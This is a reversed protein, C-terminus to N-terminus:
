ESKFHVTKKPYSWVKVELKKIDLKKGIKIDVKEHPVLTLFNNSPLIETPLEVLFALGDSSLSLITNKDNYKIILDTDMLNMNIPDKLLITNETINDIKLWLVDTLEKVSYPIATTSNPKVTIPIKENHILRKPSSFEKITLNKNMLFRSDNILIIKTDDQNYTVLIENYAQKVFWYSMKPINYYDVLSWCITPWPENYQWILTGATSFKRSRWFEIAYKMGFAQVAQTFLIWEDISSPKGFKQLNTQIKDSVVNHFEWVDNMEKQTEISFIKEITSKNPLSQIGFETCFKTLHNKYHEYPPPQLGPQNVGHWVEWNHTNGEEVSCPDFEWNKESSPSWPSSRWYPRSPDLWLCTKEKLEHLKVGLQIDERYGSTYNQFDIWENENNGCWLVISPHNRLKKVIFAIEKEVNDLYRDTEPYISCAFQFDHWIMIGYKDCLNYFEEDEVVGGGWIRIMNFHADKALSLLQEYKEKKSFNTLADTPVWDAGKCFIKEGNIEFVFCDSDNDKLLLNVSRIGFTQTRRHTSNKEKIILNYLAQEGKENPWWFNPQHVIIEHNKISKGITISEHFEKFFISFGDQPNRIELSVISETDIDSNITFSVDLTAAQNKISKTYIFIDEIEIPDNRVLQVNGIGMLVARPAFDWGYNFTPKRVFVRDQIDPLDIKEDIYNMPTDIYIVLINKSKYLDKPILIKYEIFANETQKIEAGNYFIRSVTDIREFIFYYDIDEEFEFSFESILFTGKKELYNLIEMNKEYYANLGSIRVMNSQVTGPVDFRELNRNFSEKSEIKNEQIKNFIQDEDENDVLFFSWQDIDLLKKM